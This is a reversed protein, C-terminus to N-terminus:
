YHRDFASKYSSCLSYCSSHTASQTLEQLNRWILTCKDTQSLAAYRYRDFASKYSSFLSYCSFHPASQALEKLDIYM